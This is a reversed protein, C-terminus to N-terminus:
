RRGMDFAVEAGSAGFAADIQSLVPLPLPWLGQAGRWGVPEPLPRVEDLLWAWPGCAWPSRAIRTARAPDIDGATWGTELHLAGVVRVVATVAGTPMSVLARAEAGALDRYRAMGEHDVSKGAHIALQRGLIARPPAWSRNEIPKLGRTIADAWPQMVTIALM